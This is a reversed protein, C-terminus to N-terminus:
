SISATQSGDLVSMVTPIHSVFKKLKDLTVPKTIFGDAHRLYSNSIDEQADSTTLVIVPVSSLSEHQKIEGLLQRGDKRPMNLDLFVLDPLRARAQPGEPLLVQMAEVGDRAIRIKEVIKNRELERLTLKIDTLDDDVLLIELGRRITNQTNPMM